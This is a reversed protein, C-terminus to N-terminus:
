NDEEPKEGLVKEDGWADDWDVNAKAEIAQVTVDMVLRVNAFAKVGSSSLYYIAPVNDDSNTYKEFLPSGTPEGPLVPLTYYFYGDKAHIWDSGPLGTFAGGYNDGTPYVMKWPEIFATRDSTTYGLAIGDDLPNNQSDVTTGWWDATINARIYANVNGTNTIVVDKKIFGNVDDEIDVNVLNPKLTFTRLQGAKWVNNLTNDKILEGLKLKVVKETSMVGEEGQPAGHWVKVTVTVVLDETIDQPIFWFTLSADKKNLNRNAGGEYFSDPANVDDGKAFDQLDDEGYTQSYVTTRTPNLSSDTWTFSGASTHEDKDDTTTETGTPIFKAHGKDKLGVIEVKTIFTQIEDDPRRDGAETTNNGIAFKVGTLAHRFLVNAGGNQYERIYTEKDINRSAFLIDQQDSAKAPTEYNFAISGERYDYALNTVGAPNAPMRLFFTVPGGAKDWPDFGIERRWCNQASLAFVNFPGDGAVKGSAGWIEGNFASGHVDMVNQTYVPTGRTEAVNDVLDGMETVVEELVLPVGEEIEGLSYSYQQVPADAVSRTAIGSMVLSVEDPNLTPIEIDKERECSSIILAGFAALAAFILHKRM